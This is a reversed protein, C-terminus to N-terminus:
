KSKGFGSYLKLGLNIRFLRNQASGEKWYSKPAINAQGIDYNISIDIAGLSFGAGVSLGYDTKRAFDGKDDGLTISTSEVDKEKESQNHYEIVASHNGGLAIGYYVGVMFFVNGEYKSMTSIKFNIPVDLYNINYKNVITAIGIPPAFVNDDEVKFGRSKFLFGSELFLGHGFHYAVKPGICLGAKPDYDTAAASDSKPEINM